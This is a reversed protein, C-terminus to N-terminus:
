EKNYHTWLSTSTSGTIYGRVVIELPIVTCKKCIM